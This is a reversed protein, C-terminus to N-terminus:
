KQNLQMMKRVQEPPPYNPKDEFAGGASLAILITMSIFLMSVGVLVFGAQTETEVVGTKIVLGTIGRKPRNYIRNSSITADPEDFQVNSM